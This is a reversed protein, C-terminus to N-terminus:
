RVKACVICDRPEPGLTPAIHWRRLIGERTLGAKEMVRASSPNETDCFAYARFIGPQALAWDVLHTLAEAALGHRWFKKALLYGFMAKGGGELKLGICGIPTETGKLCLLWVFHGSDNEWNAACERLFVALPEVREYPPWSLYRTVEPDSAYAAFVAPADAERPVRGVLRATAFTAPPRPM